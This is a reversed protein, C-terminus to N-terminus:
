QVADLADTIGEGYYANDQTTGTCRPTVPCAQDDAQARLLALLQAPSADPHASKLLALVGAVHPSAMSTGSMNGYRNGTITSLIASGPAAADIVGLGINSFSSLTLTRTISSVTAVGPLETPFDKCGNNITRAVPTTDNPSSNTPRRTPWTTPPTAQPPPASSAASRPTRWPEACRRWAPPRTRHDSCWFVWPDIFYSINTVDMGHDAAWIFGCIAYEPYIFGDDNGVKM